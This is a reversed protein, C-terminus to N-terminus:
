TNVQLSSKACIDSGKEVLFKAVAIHGNLLAVFLATEQFAYSLNNYGFIYGIYELFMSNQLTTKKIKQQRLSYWDRLRFLPFFFQSLCNTKRYCPVAAKQRCKMSKIFKEILM